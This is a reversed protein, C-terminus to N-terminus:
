RPPISPTLLKEPKEKPLHKEKGPIPWIKTFKWGLKEMRHKSLYQLNRKLIPLKWKRRTRFQQIRTRKPVWKLDLHWLCLVVQSELYSEVMKWWQLLDKFWNVTTWGWNSMGVMSVGAALALFSQQGRLSALTLQSNLWVPIWLWQSEEWIQWGRTWWVRSLRLRQLPVWLPPTVHLTPATVAMIWTLLPWLWLTLLTTHSRMLAGLLGWDGWWNGSSSIRMPCTATATPTPHHQLLHSWQVSNQPILTFDMIIQQSTGVPTTFAIRPKTLPLIWFHQSFEWPPHSHNGLPCHLLHHHHPNFTFPIIISHKHCGMM